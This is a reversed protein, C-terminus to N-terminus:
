HAGLRGARRRRRGLAELQIALGLLFAAPAGLALALQVGAYGLADARLLALAVVLAAFVAGGLVAGLQDLASLRSM